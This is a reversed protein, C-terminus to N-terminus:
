LYIGEVTTGGHKVTLGHSYYGNHSNYIHLYLPIKKNCMLRFIVMGGGDLQGNGDILFDRDIYYESLDFGCAQSYDESRNYDKISDSIFYGADECCCQSTDYGIYTDNDDVFNVKTGWSSDSGEFIRM